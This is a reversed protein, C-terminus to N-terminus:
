TVANRTAFAPDQWAATEITERLIDGARWVDEHSLYLPTLGLRLIDPDRFDGIVGRAILAQTLAYADRHRFSIHSGRAAPDRPTVCELGLATGARALIEFLAASKAAVATMDVGDWVDLAADLAAMSLIGPTGTRWRAMGPAPRYGDEFAFPAAHGMWGSLTNDLCDQWRKAVFVFAPAGPGGNLYKYTSGVALDADALDIAVAGVSHSLDWLMLAGAAHARATWAPMDFRAATKYHVHTLLLLATDDDLADALDERAVVRLRAGPVCTVAGEAVHLDTPFNGAESVVTRRAPDLRLAAVILKFLHISTSDGVIVEDPAAGILPAIRAGIREPADFWGENWSRILRDGWQRTAANALAAPVHAPLAGLSNGDLYLTDAPLTFRDRYAALPDRADLARADDRTM